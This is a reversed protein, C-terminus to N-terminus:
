YKQGQCFLAVVQQDTLKGKAARPKGHRRYQALASFIVKLYNPGFTARLMMGFINSFRWWFNDINKWIFLLQNREKILTVYDRSFKSTSAEHEHGVIAKPEWIIKFGAKWARYGLDFDEWYFPEYLLDFGGLQRWLSKRLVMSGGSAWASIHPKKSYGGVGHHIFGGRWWIQAWGYKEENFSVAFVQPDQFNKLAAELFDKQPLVDTNLLVIFEGRARNIGQHCARSFGLNEKNAILEIGKINKLYNLSDDSSGNDIIIIETGKPLVAMTAPLNKRLLKEGNWNAIVVSINSKAM